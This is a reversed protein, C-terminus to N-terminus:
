YITCVEKINLNFQASGKLNRSIITLLLSLNIFLFIAFLGGIVENLLFHQLNHLTILLRGYNKM